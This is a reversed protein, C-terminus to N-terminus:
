ILDLEDIESLKKKIENEKEKVIVQLIEIDKKYTDLEITIKKKTEIYNHLKKNFIKSNRVILEEIESWDNESLLKSKKWYVWEKATIGNVLFSKFEEKTYYHGKKKIFSFLDISFTSIDLEKLKSLKISDVPNSFYPEIFLKKVEDKRNSFVLVIDIRVDGLYTKYSKELEVKEIKVNTFKNKIKDVVYRNIKEQLQWPSKHINYLEIIENEIISCIYEESIEPLNIESIEKFVEKALWHIYSEFNAKCESNPIHRFHPRQKIGNNIAMLDENCQFCVCNCNIGNEVNKASVLKNTFKDKAVPYKLDTKM